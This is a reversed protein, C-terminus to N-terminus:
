GKNAAQEKLAEIKKIEGEILESLKKASRKLPVYNIFNQSELVEKAEYYKKEEYLSIATVLTVDERNKYDGPIQGYLEMAKKTQGKLLYVTGLSFLLDPDKNRNRKHIEEMLPGAQDLLNFQLYVQAMNFLPVQHERRKGVAKKFYDLAKEYHRLKLNLMGKNNLAPPFYGKKAKSLSLDFYFDAKGYKDELFSCMGLENWYLPDEKREKLEKQLIGKGEEIKGQYCLSLGKYSTKELKELRDETYRLFSEEKFSDKSPDGVKSTLFKTSCGTLLLVTILPLSWNKM